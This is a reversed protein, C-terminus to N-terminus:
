NEHHYAPQYKPQSLLEAYLMARLREGTAVLTTYRNFAKLTGARVEPPMDPYVDIREVRKKWKEYLARRRVLEDEIWKIEAALADGQPQNLEAVPFIPGLLVKNM